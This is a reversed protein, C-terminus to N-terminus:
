LEQKNDCKMSSAEAVCLTSWPVDIANICLMRGFFRGRWMVLVYSMYPLFNRIRCPQM